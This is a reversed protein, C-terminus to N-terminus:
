LDLLIDINVALRGRLIRTNCLPCRNRQRLWRELCATHYKHACPARYLDESSIMEELCIGCTCQGFSLEMEDADKNDNSVTHYGLCSCLSTSECNSQKGLYCCYDVFYTGLYRKGLYCLCGGLILLSFIMGVLILIDQTNQEMM